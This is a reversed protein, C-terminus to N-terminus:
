ITIGLDKEALTEEILVPNQTSGMKHTNKGNNKGLYLAKCKQGNFRWNQLKQLDDQISDSDSQTKSRGFLKTDDAFLSVFNNINHPMDNIFIVFLIPGIVSGQPVGSCRLKRKIGYAECKRILKKHPVKDFAKLLGYTYM